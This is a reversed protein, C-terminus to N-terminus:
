VHVLTTIVRRQARKHTAVQNAAVLADTWTTLHQEGVALRAGTCVDDDSKRKDVLSVGVIISLM